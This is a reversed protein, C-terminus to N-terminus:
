GGTKEYVPCNIENQILTADPKLDKLSLVEALVPSLTRNGYIFLQVSSELLNVENWDIVIM